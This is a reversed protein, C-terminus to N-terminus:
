DLRVTMQVSVLGDDSTACDHEGADTLCMTVRTGAPRDGKVSASAIVLCEGTATHVGTGCFVRARVNRAIPTRAEFEVPDSFGVSVSMLLDSPSSTVEVFITREPEHNDCGVIVLLGALVLLSRVM